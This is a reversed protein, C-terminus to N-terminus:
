HSAYPVVIPNMKAAVENVIRAVEETSEKVYITNSPLEIRTISRRPKVAGGVQISSFTQIYAANVYVAENTDDNTFKIIIPM